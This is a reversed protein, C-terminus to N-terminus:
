FPLKDDVGDPINMFDDGAGGAAACLRDFFDSMSREEQEGTELGSHEM